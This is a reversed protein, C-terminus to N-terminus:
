ARGGRQQALFQKLRLVLHRGSQEDNIHLLRDKIWAPARFSRAVIQLGFRINCKQQLCPAGCVRRYHMHAM